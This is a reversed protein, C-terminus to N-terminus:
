LAAHGAHHRMFALSRAIIERSRADDDRTDFGHHAAPHNMVEIPLNHALADAVFRDTTATFEACDLGARALFIPPVAGAHRLLTVPSFEEVVGVSVAPDLAGRLPRLDLLAYYAVICRIYAPRDRLVTRLGVPGGASCVWLCLRVPDIGLNLAHARVYGILDDIDQAAAALARGRESSRHAFTVGVLGCAAVLQGWGVYQGSDKIDRLMEPPGDGHVFLVAPRLAAPTVGAPPEYVDLTLATHDATKYTLSRRVRVSEMGPLRYVLQEPGADHTEAM